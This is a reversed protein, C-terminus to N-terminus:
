NTLVLKLMRESEPFRPDKISKNQFNLRAVDNLRIYVNLGNRRNQRVESGLNVRLGQTADQGSTQISNVRKPPGLSLMALVDISGVRYRADNPLNAKFDADPVIRVAIRSSKKVPTAGSTKQGNVALEITPKPPQIVKYAVQGVPVTQGNTVSAVRVDCTRGSPIIRFNKVNQKSQIVQANSATVRPSYLNGLAPVDITVDNGCQYYLNQVAASTIVVEPRRVTFEGEVPLEDFGGTAKPVRIMASYKQKGENRGKPIVNASAAIKLTASNGDEATEVRGTGSSFSPKIASSSMAVYLKTEFQLGAPVITATPADIPVVKDVKFIAVGLRGNLLDLLKKQQEYADLKLAELMALNGMVPGDFTYKEWSKREGGVNKPDQLKEVEIKQSEEKVNGNYMGTIYEAFEDFKNRLEFAHGNGRGGNSVDQNGEGMWYQYNAELEDKKGYEGTNPDYVAITQMEGIHTNLLNILENTKSKIDDLTDLLGENSRKGENKIEDNIEKKMSEIFADANDNAAVASNNLKDKIIEFADLIEKSVNMALLALLVLYMMNIMKQRPSLKGSAM